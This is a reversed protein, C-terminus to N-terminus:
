ARGQPTKTVFMRKPKTSVFIAFAGMLGKMREASQAAVIAMLASPRRAIRTVRGRRM